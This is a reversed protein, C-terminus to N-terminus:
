ALMVRGDVVSPVLDYADLRACFDLDQEFGLATLARGSAAQSLMERLRDQQGRGTELALRAGDSLTYDAPAVQILYHVILGACVTDDLAPRGQRGAAAITVDGRDKALLAAVAQLNVFAAILVARAGTAAAIAATGNTTTFVVTKGGVRDPGYEGPSNGLHFGRVPVGGREGGLLVDSRDLAKATRRAAAVSPVPIFARCGSALGHIMTTSARVVDIVVVAHTHRDLRSLEAPTLTVDLHM